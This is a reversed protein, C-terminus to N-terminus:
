SIYNTYIVLKYGTVWLCCSIYKIIYADKALKIVNNNMYLTRYTIYFINLGKNFFNRKIIIYYLIAPKIYKINPKLLIPYNILVLPLM